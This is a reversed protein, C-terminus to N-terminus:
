LRHEIDAAWMRQEPRLVRQIWPLKLNADRRDHRIVACEIEAACVFADDNCLQFRHIGEGDIALEDRVPPRIGAIVKGARRLQSRATNEKRMKPIMAYEGMVALLRDEAADHLM